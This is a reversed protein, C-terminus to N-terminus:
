CFFVNLCNFFNVLVRIIIASFDIGLTEELFFFLGHNSLSHLFVFLWHFTARLFNLLSSM